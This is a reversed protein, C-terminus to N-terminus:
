ATPRAWDPTAWPSNRIPPQGRDILAAIAQDLNGPKDYRQMYGLAKVYSEYAAPAAAGDAGHLAAAPVEVHM